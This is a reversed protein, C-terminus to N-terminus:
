NLYRILSRYHSLNERMGECMAKPCEHESNREIVKDLWNLIHKEFTIQTYKVGHNQIAARDGAEPHKDSALPLYFVYIQNYAFGRQYVRDVYRRLQREQDPARNIKNEFIIAYKCDIRNRTVQLDIHQDERTVECAEDVLLEPNFIDCASLLRRLLFLGCGHKERPDIFYKLLRSHKPEDPNGWFNEFPWDTINRRVGHEGAIQSVEELLTSFRQHAPEIDKEVLIRGITSTPDLSLLECVRISGKKRITEVESLIDLIRSLNTNMSM